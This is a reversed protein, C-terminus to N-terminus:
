QYERSYCSVLHRLCNGSDVVSGKKANKATPRFSGSPRRRAAYQSKDWWRYFVSQCFAVCCPAVHRNQTSDNFVAARRHWRHFISLPFVHGIARISALYAPVLGTVFRLKEHKKPTNCFLCSARLHRLVYFKRLKKALSILFIRSMKPCAESGLTPPEFGEPRLECVVGCTGYFV